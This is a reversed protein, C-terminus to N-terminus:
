CFAMFIRLTEIVKESRVKLLVPRSNKLQIVTLETALDFRLTSLYLLVLFMTMNLDSSNFAMGKLSEIPKAMTGPM